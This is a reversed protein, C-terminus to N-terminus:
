RAGMQLADDFRKSVATAIEGPAPDRRAALCCAVAIQAALRATSPAAGRAVLLVAMDDAFGMLTRIHRDFLEPNADVLREHM